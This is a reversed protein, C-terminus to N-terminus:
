RQLHHMGDDDKYFKALIFDTFYVKSQDKDRGFFLADSRIERHIM